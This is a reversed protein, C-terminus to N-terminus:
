SDGFKWALATWTVFFLQGFPRSVVSLDHVYRVTLRGLIPKVLLDIEPGLGYARDRAGRQM